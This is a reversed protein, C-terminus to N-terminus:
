DDNLYIELSPPQCTFYLGPQTTRGVCLKINRLLVSVIFLSAVPYKKMQLKRHFDQSAFKQEVDKYIWEVATRSGNM